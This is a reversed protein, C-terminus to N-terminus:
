PALRRRQRRRRRRAGHHGVEAHARRQQLQPRRGAPQGALGHRRGRRRAGRRRERRCGLHQRRHQAPRAGARTVTTSTTSYGSTGTPASPSTARRAAGRQTLVGNSYSHVVGQRNVLWVAGGPWPSTSRASTRSSMGPTAETNRRAEGGGPNGDDFNDLLWVDGDAGVAIDRATGGESSAGSYYYTSHSLSACVYM